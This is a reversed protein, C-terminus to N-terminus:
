RTSNSLVDRRHLLSLNTPDIALGAEVARENKEPDLYMFSMLLAGVARQRKELDAVVRDHLDATDFRVLSGINAPHMVLMMGYLNEWSLFVDFGSRYLGRDFEVIPFEDSNVPADSVWDKISAEGAFVFELLDDPSEVGIMQLSETVVKKDFQARMAAYSYPHSKRQGILLAHQSPTYHPYVLMTNEFVDSFTRLISKLSERSLSLPLWTSYVGDDNLIAKGDLFYEKTYLSSNEAFLGPWIADNLVVDYRENTLHIYNKADMYVMRVRNELDSGLNIHSFYRKSLAVVEKSLEVCTIDLIGHLTLLKTLEGSGFGVTLVRKANGHLIVPIHGQAKQTQRLSIHDGAVNIGATTIVKFDRAVYRHVSATTTVGERVDVLETAEDKGEIRNLWAFYDKKSGLAVYAFALAFAFASAVRIKAGEARRFGLVVSAMAVLGLGQIAWQSGVLPILCFGTLLPGVVGGLTNVFYATAVVHGADPHARRRLHVLIPMNLGMLFSPIFFLLASYFLTFYRGVAFLLHNTGDGFNVSLVRSVGVLQAMYFVGCLGVAHMVWASLRLHNRCKKVLFSGGFTGASYGLLYVCLIASFAYTTARLYATSTRIWVIEYGMAVLGSVFLWADVAGATSLEAPLARNSPGRPEEVFSKAFGFAAIAVALNLGAALYLTDRVGFAEILFFGSAFAGLVAGLTNSAYLVGFKVGTTEERGVWLSSLLPLTMGMLSTPLLLVVSSLLVQVVLLTTPSPSFARYVHVYMTDIGGLVAPTLLASLAICLEVIGYIRLKHELGDVKRRVAFAGLALGGMFLALTVTAAVTTNGFILKLLRLWISEYILSCTGSLFFFVVVPLRGSRASFTGEM